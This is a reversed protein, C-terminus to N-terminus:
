LNHMSFSLRLLEELRDFEKKLYLYGLLAEFGTARRYDLIDANKAATNSHANRGRKFVATEEKTLMPLLAEVTKSQAAAKVYGTAARHLKAVPLNGEKALMTRIYLEYVADGVYAFVLPSVENLQMHLSFDFM